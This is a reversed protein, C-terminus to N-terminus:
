DQMLRVSMLHYVRQNAANQPRRLHSIEFSRWRVMAWRVEEPRVFLLFIGGSGKSVSCKSDLGRGGRGFWGLAFGKGEIGTVSSSSDSSSGSYVAGVLLCEDSVGAARAYTYKM